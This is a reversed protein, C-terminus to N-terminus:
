RLNLFDSTPLALWDRSVIDGMLLSLLIVLWLFGAGAFIWVLRSGYRVHMFYLIVFLGKLVAITMAVITNVPGLDIFLWQTHLILLDHCKPFVAGFISVRSIPNTSRHFIQPM